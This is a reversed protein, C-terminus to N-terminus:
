NHSDSNRLWIHGRGWSITLPQFDASGLRTDQTHTHTTRYFTATVAILVSKKKSRSPWIKCSSESTQTYFGQPQLTYFAPKSYPNVVLSVTLIVKMSVM